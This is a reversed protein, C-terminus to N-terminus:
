NGASGAENTGIEYELGDGLPMPHHIQVFERIRAVQIRQCRQLTILPMHEHLAIYAIAFQNGAQQLGM